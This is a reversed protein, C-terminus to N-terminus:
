RFCFTLTTDANASGFAKHLAPYVLQAPSHTEEGPVVLVVPFWPDALVWLRAPPNECPSAGLDMHPKKFDDGELVSM